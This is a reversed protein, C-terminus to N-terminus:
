HRWETKKSKDKEFSLVLCRMINLISFFLIRILEKLVSKVVQYIDLSLLARGSTTESCKLDSRVISPLYMKIGLVSCFLSFSDLPPPPPLQTKTHKKKKKEIQCKSVFVSTAFVECYFHWSQFYKLFASSLYILLHDCSFSNVEITETWVLTKSTETCTEAQIFENKASKKCMPTKQGGDM